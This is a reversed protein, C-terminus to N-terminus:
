LEYVAVFEKQNEFPELTCVKWINKNTIEEYRIM